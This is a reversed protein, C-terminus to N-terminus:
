LPFFFPSSSLSNGYPTSNPLAQTTTPSVSPPYMGPLGPLITFPIMQSLTEPATEPPSTQTARPDEQLRLSMSDNRNPLVLVPNSPARPLRTWDWIHLNTARSHCPTRTIGPTGELGLWEILVMLIVLDLWRGMVVMGVLRTHPSPLSCVQVVHSSHSGRFTPSTWRCHSPPPFPKLKM